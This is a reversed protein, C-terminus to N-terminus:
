SLQGFLAQIIKNVNLNFKIQIKEHFVVIPLFISNLIVFIM